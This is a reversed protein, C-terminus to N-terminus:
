RVKLTNQKIKKKKNKIAEAYTKDMYFINDKPQFKILTVPIESLEDYPTIKEKKMDIDFAFTPINSRVQETRKTNIWIAKTRLNEMSVEVTYERESKLEFEFKGGGKSITEYILDGADYVEITAGKLTEGYAHVKGKFTFTKDQSLVSFNLFLFFITLTSLSKMVYNITKEINHLFQVM